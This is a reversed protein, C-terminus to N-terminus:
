EFKHGFQRKLDNLVAKILYFFNTSKVSISTKRTVNLVVRPSFYRRDGNYLIYLLIRCTCTTLIPYLFLKKTLGNKRSFVHGLTKKQKKSFRIITPASLFFLSFPSNQSVFYAFVAQKGLRATM